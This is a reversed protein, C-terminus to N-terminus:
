GRGVPAGGDPCSRSERIMDKVGLIVGHLPGRKDKPVEDLRKAEALIHEKDIYAWARVADDRAEYRALHALALDTVTLKGAQILAVTESATLYNPAAM